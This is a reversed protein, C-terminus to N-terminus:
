YVSVLISNFEFVRGCIIQKVLIAKPMIDKNYFEIRKSLKNVTDFYIERKETELYEKKSIIEKLWRPDKIKIIEM